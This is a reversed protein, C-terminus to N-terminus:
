GSAKEIQRTVYYQQMISLINNVLWYLVLGSPFWLFFFTFMIPMFKFVRAQVPDPPEPQMRQTLYMSVGMLIPLIFYPDMASLDEIWLFFPAQRLEVSEMLTWYLALFVPMQLLIPFCGGLPNAGEKKYLNMMEQSFKQQDDGYREKLRMMDPQLKRMKAMSRFSAASLPYLLMKVIITLGIIAIGWNGVMGHIVNLMWFLPQSLWWLFGYDIVLDLGESIEQLRYQDKPGSYFSASLTGSEGPAITTAATTFGFLYIDQNRLKRAQYSVESGASPVWASVFYHQVMAMYGESRTHKYSAEELDEFELKRYFEEDSRTAGGVFPQMGMLNDSATMPDQGDRKIQVFLGGVWPNETTNTVEYDLGILYDGRTFRFTKLVTTGDEQVHSLTVDLRDATGMEYTSQEAQFRPRVGQKDTGNPGILGSQGVYANRPDVLVFPVDPTELAAPYAPLAVRVIDGGLPDIQLQFVDTVVSILRRSANTQVAENQAAPVESQVLEPVTSDVAQQPMDPISADASVANSVSQTEEVAATAATQGYDENWALVLMYSTVALGLLIFVRQFDM